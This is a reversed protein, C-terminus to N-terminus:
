ALRCDYEANAKPMHHPSNFCHSTTEASGSFITESQECKFSERSSSIQFFSQSCDMESKM